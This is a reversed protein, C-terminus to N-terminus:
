RNQQRIEARLESFTSESLEQLAEVGQEDELSNSIDGLQNLATQTGIRGLNIIAARRVEDTRNSDLAIEALPDVADAAGIDGLTTIASKVVLPDQSTRAVEVITTVHDTTGLKSLQVLCHIQTDTSESRLCEAFARAAEEEGIQVLADSASQRVERSAELAETLAPVAQPDRIRGLIRAAWNRVDANESSQLAEIWLPLAEESEILERNQEYTQPALPDGLRIQEILDNVASETPSSCAVALGAILVLFILTRRSRLM